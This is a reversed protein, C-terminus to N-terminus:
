KNGWFFCVLSHLHLMKFFNAKLEKLRDNNKLSLNKLTECLLYCRDELTLNCNPFCKCEHQCFGLLFFTLFCLASNPSCLSEVTWSALGLELLNMKLISSVLLWKHTKNQNQTTNKMHWWHQIDDFFSHQAQRLFYQHVTRPYSLIFFVM